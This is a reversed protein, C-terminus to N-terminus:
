PGVALPAALLASRGREFPQLEVNAATALDSMVCPEAFSLATAAASRAFPVLDAGIPEGDADYARYTERTGDSGAQRMILAGDKAGTFRCLFGCLGAVARPLPVPDNLAAASQVLPLVQEVASRFAALERHLERHVNA